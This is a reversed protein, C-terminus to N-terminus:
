DTKVKQLNCIAYKNGFYHCCVNGCLYSHQFQFNLIKGVNLFSLNTWFWQVVFLNLSSSSIGLIYRYTLNLKFTYLWQLSLSHFSLIESKKWLELPIVRYGHSFEFIVLANKHCIRFIEKKEFNFPCLEAFFWQVMVFNWSSRCM